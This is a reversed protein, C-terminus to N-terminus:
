LAEPNSLWNLWERCHSVTMGTRPILSCLRGRSSPYMKLMKIKVVMARALVEDWLSFTPNPTWCLGVPPGHLVCSVSNVSIGLEELASLEGHQVIGQRDQLGISDWPKEIFANFAGTEFVTKDFAIFYSQVHFNNEHSATLGYVTSGNSSMSRILSKWRDLSGFPGLISDNALWLWKTGAFVSARLGNFYQFGAKYSTYDVGPSKPLQIVTQCYNEELFSVDQTTLSSQTVLIVKSTASLYYLQHILRLTIQNSEEYHALICVADLGETDLSKDHPPWFELWHYKM